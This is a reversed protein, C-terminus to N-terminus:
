QVYIPFVNSPAGGVTVSLNVSGSPTGKPVAVNLQYLGAITPTLGAFMPQVQAAFPGFGFAAITIPTVDALPGSPAPQGATVPPNTAGFGSGYVTLVDGIHAPQGPANITGDQNVAIFLRPARAAVNVSAPASIAGDDRKVQVTAFGAPVDYPLQFAIQGNSTYYLPAAVGNVLVSTAGSTAPMPASLFTPASFSLQEGRVIMIDGQAATEGPLSTHLVNTANTVVGGYYILPNGKDVIQLSVPVTVTGNAANSPFAISASYSGAAMGTIDVSFYGPVVGYGPVNDPALWAGGSVAPTQATLTGQGVNVISVQPSFPYTLKPTGTALRISLADPAPQPGYTTTATAVAIPSNTVRMTVPITQNDTANTGASTTVSGNYTGAAM